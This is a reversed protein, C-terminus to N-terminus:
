EYFEELKSLDITIDSPMSEHFKNNVPKVDSKTQRALDYMTKLKSGMNYIGKTDSEVLDRVIRSIKDVYDFNGVQNIYANEHIFPKAKHTGRLLLYNNSKLQVYGDGLLKTYGYWNRCHVPVDNETAYRKSHSYVYDTSIHVLKQNNKSTIDVLDVVGKYNVNWHNERNEDYTNCDAICNIVVDYDYIHDKYSDVDTFDIGDKKRSIYDWETIKILESGLLGDGLIIKSM